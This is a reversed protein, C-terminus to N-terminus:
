LKIKQRNVYAVSLEEACGHLERTNQPIVINDPMVLIKIPMGDAFGALVIWASHLFRTVCPEVAPSIAHLGNRRQMRDSSSIHNPLAVFLLPTMLARKTSVSM